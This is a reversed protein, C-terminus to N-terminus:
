GGNMNGNDPPAESKIPVPRPKFTGRKDEESVYHEFQYQLESKYDECHERPGKSCGETRTKACHECVNRPMIDTM